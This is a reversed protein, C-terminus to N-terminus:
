PINELPEPFAQALRSISGQPLSINAERAKQVQQWAKKIDKLTIYFMSVCPM